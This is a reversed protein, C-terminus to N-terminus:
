RESGVRVILTNERYSSASINRISKNAGITNVIKPAHIMLRSYVSPVSFFIKTIGTERVANRQPLSSKKAISDKSNMSSEHSSIM